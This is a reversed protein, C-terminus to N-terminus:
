RVGFDATAVSAPLNGFDGGALEAKAVGIGIERWQASLLVARHPPSELWADVTQSATMTRSTSFITEGVSWMRSPLMPYSRAIRDPASTGDASSHDFFGGQLMARTHRVAAKQLAPSVRLPRLGEATRAENIERVLQAEVGSLRSTSTAGGAGSVPVAVLAVVLVGVLMGLRRM